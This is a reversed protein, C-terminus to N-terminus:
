GSNWKWRVRLPIWDWEDFTNECNICDFDGYDLFPRHKCNPCTMVQVLKAYKPSTTINDSYFYVWDGSEFQDNTGYLEGAGPDHKAKIRFEMEVKGSNTEM